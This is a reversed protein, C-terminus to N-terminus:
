TLSTLLRSTGSTYNIIALEDASDEYYDLDDPGFNNPYKRGFSENLHARVEAMEPTRSYLFSLNNIQVVVYLGPM